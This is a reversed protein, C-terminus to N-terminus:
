LRIERGTSLGGMRPRIGKFGAGPTELKQQIRREQMWLMAKEVLTRSEPRSESAKKQRREELEATRSVEQAALGFTQAILLIGLSVPLLRPLQM